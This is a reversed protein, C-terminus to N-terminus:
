KAKWFLCLKTSSGIMINLVILIVKKEKEQYQCEVTEPNAVFNTQDYEEGERYQEVVNKHSEKRQYNEVGNEFGNTFVGTTGNKYEEGGFCGGDRDGLFNVNENQGAQRYEQNQNYSGNKEEDHYEPTETQFLWLASICHLLYQIFYEAKVACNKDSGPGIM